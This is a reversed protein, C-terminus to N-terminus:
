GKQNKRSAAARKLTDADVQMEMPMWDHAEGEDVQKYWLGGYQDIGYIIHFHTDGVVQIQTLRLTKPMQKPLHM